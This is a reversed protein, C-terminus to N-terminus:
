KYQFIWTQAGSSRLRIGFGPVDDDFIIRDTVGSDLKLNSVTAATLRMSSRTSVGPFGIEQRHAALSICFFYSIKGNVVILQCHWPPNRAPGYLHKGRHILRYFFARARKKDQARRTRFDPKWRDRCLGLAHKEPDLDLATGPGPARARRRSR